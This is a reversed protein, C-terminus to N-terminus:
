GAKPPLYVPRQMRALAVWPMIWVAILYFVGITALGYLVPYVRADPLTFWYQAFTGVAITLLVSLLFFVVRRRGVLVPEDRVVVVEDRESRKREAAAASQLLAEARRHTERCRDVEDATM